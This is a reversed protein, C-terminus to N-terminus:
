RIKNKGMRAIIQNLIPVIALFLFILIAFALSNVMDPATRGYLIEMFILSLFYFSFDISVTIPAKNM